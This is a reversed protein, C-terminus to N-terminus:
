RFLKIVNEVLWGFVNKTFYLKLNWEFLDWGQLADDPHRYGDGKDVGFPQTTAIGGPGTLQARVYCTIHRACFELDITDGVFIVKGDAIWEVKTTDSTTLTITNGNVVINTVSPFPVTKDGEIGLVRDNRSCALFAGSELCARINEPTNAPMFLMEATRGIEGLSHSDDNAFGWVPRGESMLRLLIQDWLVRDYRTAGSVSGNYAEMGLCSPYDRFIGVYFNVNAPDEAAAPDNESKIWDGPHNIFSIGGRRQTGAIATRYDTSVGWWGQGWGGYLGNVHSKYVTAANMEIGLPVQVMARGGRGAGAAMEAARGRSLVERSSFATMLDLIPVTMPKQDWPRSVVGHDTNAIADYGQAYYEEVMSKLSESGDSFTTHTHLNAKYAGWAGAGEWVVEKYPNAITFSGTQAALTPVTLALGFMLCLLLAFIRKM